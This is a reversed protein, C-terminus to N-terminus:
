DDLHGLEGGPQRAPPGSSDLVDNAPVTFLQVIVMVVVIVVFVVLSAWLPMDQTNTLVAALVGLLVGASLPANDRPNLTGNVPIRSRTIRDGVTPRARHNPM